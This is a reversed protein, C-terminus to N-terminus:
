PEVVRNTWLAWYLPGTEIESYLNMIGGLFFDDIPVELAMRHQDGVRFKELTGGIEGSRIDAVGARPKLPKYHGIYITGTDLEGRHVETVEYKLIYAYDYLPDDPFEGPIELLRATVEFVGMATM